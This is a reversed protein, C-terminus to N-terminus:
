VNADEYYQMFTTELDAENITVDQVKHKALLALVANIDGTSTFETFTNARNQVKVGPLKALAALLKTDKTTVRINKTTADNLEELQKVAILRGERIFAVHDCLAQVENLAHSSVFITKGQARCEMMIKNFEAQMLPDLGSTPEDFILLEPEHMLASILGVKQRNGRSLSKFKRGLDCDLRKALQQVYVRNFRGHLNGFYELQQWATLEMDLAFDGALFGVRRRIAVSDRRSDLGLLKIQGSTPRILDVLMNITTSKGAGNPGLFGMVMGTEVKLSVDIVGRSKGYNKTLNTLEIASM